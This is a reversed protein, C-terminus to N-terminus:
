KKRRLRELVSSAEGKTRYDHLLMHVACRVLDYKTVPLDYTRSIEIKLDELRELEETTFAYTNQREPRRNLDLDEYAPAPNLSAAEKRGPNTGQLSAQKRAEKSAQNWPEKTSPESPSQPPTPSPPVPIAPRSSSADAKPQFLQQDLAGLKAFPDNRMPM